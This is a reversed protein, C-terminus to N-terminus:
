RVVSIKESHSNQGDTIVFNYIGNAFDSVDILLSNKIGEMQTVLKGRSDYVFVKLELESENKIQVTASAPNPFVTVNLNKEPVNIGSLMDGTCGNATVITYTTTSYSTNITMTNTIFDSTDVSTFVLSGLTMNNVLANCSLNFSTDTKLLINDQYYIHSWMYADGFCYLENASRKKLRYITMNLGNSEGYRKTIITDLNSDFKVFVVNAGGCVEQPRSWALFEFFNGSTQVMGWGNDMFAYSLTRAGVFNGSPDFKGYLVDSHFPDNTPLATGSFYYCSDFTSQELESLHISVTSSFEKSWIENGAKTIKTLTIKFDPNFIIAPGAAALNGDNTFILERYFNCRNNKNFWIFNGTADTKGLISQGYYGGALYLASDSVDEIFKEIFLGNISKFWLVVGAPNIKIMYATYSSGAAVLYNGDALQEIQSKGECPLNFDLVWNTQYTASVSTVAMETNWVDTHVFVHNGQNDIVGDRCVNERNPTGFDVIGTSQSFASISFFNLLLLLSGISFFIKM